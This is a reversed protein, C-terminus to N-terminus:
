CTAAFGRHSAPHRHHDRWVAEDAKGLGSHERRFALALGEVCRSVSEDAAFARAHHHQFFEGGRNGVAVRNVRHDDARREILVAVGVANRQGARVGLGPKDAIRAHIGADVGRVDTVDFRVAGASRHAVGDFGM